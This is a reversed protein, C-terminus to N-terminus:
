EHALEVTGATGPHRRRRLFSGRRRKFTSEKYRRQVHEAVSIDFRQVALSIGLVLEVAGHGPRDLLLSGASTVRYEAWRPLCATLAYPQESSRRCSGDGRPRSSDVSSATAWEVLQCSATLRLTHRSRVRAILKPRHAIHGAARGHRNDTLSRLRGCNNAAVPVRRALRIM